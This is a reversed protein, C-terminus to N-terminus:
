ANQIRIIRPLTREDYGRFLVERAHQIAALQPAIEREITALLDWGRANAELGEPSIVIADLAIESEDDTLEAALVLESALECHEAGDILEAAPILDVTFKEAADCVESVEIQSNETTNM